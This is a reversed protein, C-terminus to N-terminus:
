NQRKGQQPFFSLQRDLEAVYTSMHKEATGFYYM